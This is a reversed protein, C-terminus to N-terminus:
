RKRGAAAKGGEDKTPSLAIKIGKNPNDRECDCVFPRVWSSCSGMKAEHYPENKGDKGSWDILNHHGSGDEYRDDKYDGSFHHGWIGRGGPHGPSPGEGDNIPPNGPPQPDLGNGVGNNGKGTGCGGYRYFGFDIDSNNAGSSLRV